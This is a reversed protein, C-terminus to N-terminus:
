DLLGHEKAERLWYSAGSYDDELRGIHSVPMPRLEGTFEVGADALARRFDEEEANAAALERLAAALRQVIARHRPRLRTCIERSVRRREEDVVQRQLEIARRVVALQDHITELDQRVRTRDAEPRPIADDALLARARDTMEDRVVRSNLGQALATRQRELAGARNTLETLKDEAKSYREDDRLTAPPEAKAKTRTLFGTTVM